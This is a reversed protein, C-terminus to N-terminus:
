RAAKSFSVGRLKKFDFVGLERASSTSETSHNRMPPEEVKQYAAPGPGLQGGFV